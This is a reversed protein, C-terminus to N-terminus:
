SGQPSTKSIFSTGHNGEHGEPYECQDGGYVQPCRRLFRQNFYGSLWEFAAQLKEPSLDYEHSLETLTVDPNEAMEAFIRTVLFSTGEVCPRGNRVRPDIELEGHEPFSPGQAWTAGDHFGDTYCDTHSLGRGRDRHSAEWADRTVYRAKMWGDPPGQRSM